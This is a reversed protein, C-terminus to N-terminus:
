LFRSGVQGYEALIDEHEGEESDADYEANRPESQVRRLPAGSGSSRSSKTSRKMASRMAPTRGRTNSNSQEQGRLICDEKYSAEVFTRIAAVCAQFNEPTIHIVDRILFSLTDCSKLFSISDHMVIQRTLVINYRLEGGGGEKNEKFLFM